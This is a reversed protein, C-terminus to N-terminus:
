LRLLLEDLSSLTRSNKPKHIRDIFYARLGAKQAGEIDEVPDDGVHLMEMPDIAMEELAFQFFRVDPKVIKLDFSIFQREFYRELDLQKLLAPLRADWNSAVALRIGRDRLAKLTIEADPYIRWVEKKEFEDYIENFFASTDQGFSEEVVSQWWKKDILSREHKRKAWATRFGLNLKEPAVHVGHRAAVASYIAGVSPHPTILTGGVDFLVAKIM